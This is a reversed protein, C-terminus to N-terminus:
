WDRGYGRTNIREYHRRLGFTIGPVTKNFLEALQKATFRNLECVVAIAEHRPAVIEQAQSDGLIDAVTIDYQEAVHRLIECVAPVESAILPSQPLPAPRDAAILFPDPPVAHVDAVCWGGMRAIAAEPIGRLRQRSVFGADIGRATVPFDRAGSM